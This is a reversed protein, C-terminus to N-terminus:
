PNNYRGVEVRTFVVDEHFWPGVCDTGIRVESLVFSDGEDFTYSHVLQGDLRFWINNDEWEFEYVNEDSNNIMDRLTVNFPSPPRHGIKTEMNPGRYLLKFPDYTPGFRWKFKCQWIDDGGNFLHIEPKELNGAEWESWDWWPPLLPAQFGRMTVRIYGADIEEGLPYMICGGSSHWGDSVFVGDGQETGSTAGNLPDDVLIEVAPLGADLGADADPPPGADQIVDICACSGWFSGDAVCMQTGPPQGPACDCERLAGPDCVGEGDSGGDPACGFVVLSLVTGLFLIGPQRM